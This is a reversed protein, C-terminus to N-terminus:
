AITYGRSTITAIEEESLVAKTQASLQLTLVGLGNTKRDYLNTVLSTHVSDDVWQSMISFDMAVDKKGAFFHPGLKLTQIKGCSTFMNKNLAGNDNYIGFKSLDLYKLNKCNWFMGDCNQLNQSDWNSLDLEQVNYM